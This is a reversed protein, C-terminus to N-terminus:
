SLPADVGAGPETALLRRVTDIPVPAFDQYWHSVARFGEAEILVVSDVGSMRFSRAVERAAVPVAVITRKPRQRAVADVAVRMSAGTALGDDVLVVVKDTLRTSGLHGRVMEDVRNREDSARDTLEQVTAPALKLERILSENLVRTDWPGVAGIALEPQHPARIKRITCVDLTAVLARAIEAAVPVGGRALGLVVVDRPDVDALISQLASALQDGADSRDRFPPQGFRNTALSM